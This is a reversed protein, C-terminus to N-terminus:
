LDLNASSLQDAHSPWILNLYHFADKGFERAPPSADTLAKRITLEFQQLADGRDFHSRLSPDRESKMLLLSVCEAAVQRILPNKDTSFGALIHSYRHNWPTFTILVRVANFGTNSLLKKSSGCVKILALLIMETTIDSHEKFYYCVDVLTACATIVLTTRLSTTSKCVIEIGFRISSSYSDIESSNGRVIRRFHQLMNERPEWNRENEKGTFLESMKKIDEDLARRTIVLPIPEPATSGGVITVM